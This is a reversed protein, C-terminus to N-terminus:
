LLMEKCLRVRDELPVMTFHCAWDGPQWPDVVDPHIEPHIANFTRRPHITMKRRYADYQDRIPQQEWIGKAILDDEMALVESFIDAADQCIVYAGASFHEASIADKGWDQSVHLGSEYDHKITFNTILMDADIWLVREYHLLGDLTAQVKHWTAEIAKGPHRFCKFDYGHKGAYALMRPATLDGLPAFQDNYGTLLLTKM